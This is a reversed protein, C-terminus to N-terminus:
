IEDQYTKMIKESLINTITTKLQIMTFKDVIVVVADKRNSKPLSGIIDISIEQQLEKPIELLHLEGAKKIYQM